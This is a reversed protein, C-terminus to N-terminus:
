EKDPKTEADDAKPESDDPKAEDEATEAEPEAVKAEPEDSKKGAAPQKKRNSLLVATIAIALVVAGAVVSLIWMLDGKDESAETDKEGPAPAEIPLETPTPTPTMTPSPEPRKRFTITIVADAHDVRFLCDALREAKDDGTITDVEYGEDPTVSVYVAAKGFFRNDSNKQFAAERDPMRLNATQGDPSIEAVMYNDYSYHSDPLEQYFFLEAKGGQGTEATVTYYEPKEQLILTIPHGLEGMQEAPITYREGLSYTPAAIMRYGIDSIGYYADPNGDRDFDYYGPRETMEFGKLSERLSVTKGNRTEAIDGVPDNLNLEYAGRGDTFRLVVCNYRLGPNEGKVVYDTVQSRYALPTIGRMSGYGDIAIDFTGDGDLDVNGCADEWGCAACFADWLDPDVAEFFESKGAEIIGTEQPATVVTITVDHAPMVFNRRCNIFYRDESMPVDSSQFQKIYTGQPAECEIKFFTGPEAKVRYEKESNDDLVDRTYAKGGIITVNYEKEVNEPIPKFTVTSFWDEDTGTIMVEKRISNGPLPVAYEFPMGYETMWRAVFAVDPTGDKDLDIKLTSGDLDSSFNGETYGEYRGAIMEGVYAPMDPTWYGQTGFDVVIDPKQNAEDEAARSSNRAQPIIMGLLLLLGIVRKMWRVKMMEGRQGAKIGNTHRLM